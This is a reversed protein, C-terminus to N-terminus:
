FSYKVHFEVFDRDRLLNHEGGGAYRTYGVEGSVRNQYNANLAFNYQKRGEVFNTLPTPSTGKVDHDFRFTPELNINDLANNYTWRSVLKYGWSSSTPYGTKQQPVGQSAATAANGPTYTAPGEFRLVDSSPLDHIKMGAIELLVLTQDSRFMQSPGFLKTFSVDMQSVDKRRFGRIYQGGLTAGAVPNIQSPAGLGALLLEVDDIQLPQNKKLSYEGQMAVGWPLSTNFSTGYLRIDEPYEVFYGATKPSATPGLRSIGSFLPLRSHYNAAYFASEIDMILPLRLAFGYQGSDKAPRDPRRPVTTGITNENPQGFAIHAASGGISAFDNTAWFTGAAEPQTATHSIQYFAEGSVGYALDTSFWLNNTPIIVEDVEFGPVRLRNADFALISNLGNNVLTSEGWNIVQRGAKFTMQRGFITKRAGVYADLLDVYRGVHDQVEKTKRQREAESFEKGAGFDRADFFQKSNLVTDHVAMARVFGNLSIFDNEYRASFDSTLKLPASVMEYRDFALNGDDNNTSFATGGNGRGVLFPARKDMRFAAGATVRSDLQMQVGKWEYDLALAPTAFSLACAAALSTKVPTKSLIKIPTKM